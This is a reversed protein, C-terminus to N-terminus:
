KLLVIIIGLLTLVSSTLTGILWKKMSNIEKWQTENDKECNEIRAEFGSHAKCINNSPM